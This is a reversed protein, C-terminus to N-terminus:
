PVYSPSPALADALLARMPSLIREMSLPLPVIQCLIYAPFLLVFIDIRSGLRSLPRMFTWYLVGLLGTLLISILARERLDGHSQAIAGGAVAFTYGAIIGLQILFVGSFRARSAHYNDM